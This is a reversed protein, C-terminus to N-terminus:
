EFDRINPDTSFRCPVLYYQIISNAKNGLTANRPHLTLFCQFDVNEIVENDNSAREM